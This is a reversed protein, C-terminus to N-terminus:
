KAASALMLPTLVKSDKGRRNGAGVALGKCIIPLVKIVMLTESKLQVAYVVSLPRSGAIKPPVVGSKIM